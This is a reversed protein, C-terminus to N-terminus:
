LFIAVSDMKIVLSLLDKFFDFRLAFIINNNLTYKNKSADPLFQEFCIFSVALFDTDPKINRGFLAFPSFVSASCLIYYPITM